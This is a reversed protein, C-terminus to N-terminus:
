PRHAPHGARGGAGGRAHADWGPYPTDEGAAALEREEARRRAERTQLSDALWYTFVAGFPPNPATFHDAGQTGKTDGGVVM